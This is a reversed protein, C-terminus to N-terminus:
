AVRRYKHPGAGLSVGEVVIELQDDSNVRMRRTMMQGTLFRDVQVLENNVWSFKTNISYMVMNGQMQRTFQKDLQFRMVQTGMFDFGRLTM